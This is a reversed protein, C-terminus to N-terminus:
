ECLIFLRQKTYCTDVFPQSAVDSMDQDPLPVIRCKTEPCDFSNFPIQRAEVKVFLILM